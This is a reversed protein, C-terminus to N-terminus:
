LIKVKQIVGNKLMLRYPYISAHFEPFYFINKEDVMVNDRELFGSRRYKIELNKRSVIGTLIFLMRSDGVHQVFFREANGICGTCGTGPIIIISDYSELDKSLVSIVKDSLVKGYESISSSSCCIISLACILICGIRYILRTNMSVYNIKEGTM